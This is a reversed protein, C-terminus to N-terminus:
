ADCVEVLTTDTYWKENSAASINGPHMSMLNLTSGSMIDLEGIFMDTISVDKIDSSASFAITLVRNNIIQGGLPLNIIYNIVNSQIRNKITNDIAGGFSILQIKSKYVIYEPEIITVKEGVSIVKRCANYVARITGINLIPETGIVQVGTTGLGNIYKVININSVGPVSMAALRLAIETGGALDHYANRLRFRYNEDSEIDEGNVIPAINTVLIYPAIDTLEPAINIINHNVINGSSINGDAGYSNSQASVFGYTDSGSLTIASTTTFTVGTKNTYLIVGSPITFSGNAKDILTSTVGIPIKNVLTQAIYKFAPDIYFKITSYTNDMTIKATNRPLNFINEGLLDLENGIATAISKGIIEASATSTLRSIEAAYTELMQRIVSTASLDYKNVAFEEIRRIASLLIDEKTRKILM